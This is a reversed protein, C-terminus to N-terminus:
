LLQTCCKLYPNNIEDILRWSAFTESKKNTQKNLNTEITQYLHILASM